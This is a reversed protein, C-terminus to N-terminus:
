IHTHTHTHAHTNIFHVFMRTLYTALLSMQYQLRKIKNNEYYTMHHNLNKILM